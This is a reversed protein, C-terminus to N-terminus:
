IDLIRYDRDKGKRVEAGKEVLTGDLYVSKVESHERVYAALKCAGSWEGEIRIEVVKGADSCLEGLGQLVHEPKWLAAKSLRTEWDGQYLGLGISEVGIEMLQKFVKAARACDIPMYIASVKRVLQAQKPDFQSLMQSLQFLTNAHFRNQGYFIKSGEACAEKDVLLLDLFDPFPALLRMSTANGRLSRRSGECMLSPTQWDAYEFIESHDRTLTTLFRRPKRGKGQPGGLSQTGPGTQLMVGSPPLVLVFEYIASKIEAPLKYWPSQARYKPPDELPCSKSFVSRVTAASVSFMVMDQGRIAIEEQHRVRRRQFNVEYSRLGNMVHNKALSEIDRLSAASKMVEVNFLPLQKMMQLGIEDATLEQGTMLMLIVIFLPMDKAITPGKDLVGKVADKLDQPYAITKRSAM